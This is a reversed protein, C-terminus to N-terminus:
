QETDLLPELLVTEDRGLGVLCGIVVGDSMEDLSQAVVQWEFRSGDVVQAAKRKHFGSIIHGAGGGLAPHFKISDAPGAGGARERALPFGPRVRVCKQTGAQAPVLSSVLKFDDHALTRM